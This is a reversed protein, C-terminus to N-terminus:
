PAPHVASFICHGGVPAQSVHQVRPAQPSLDVSDNDDMLKIQEFNPRVAQRFGQSSGQGNGLMGYVCAVVRNM